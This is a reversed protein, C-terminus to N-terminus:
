HMKKTHIKDRAVEKFLAIEKGFVSPIDVKKFGHVPIVFPGVFLAHVSFSFRLVPDRRM